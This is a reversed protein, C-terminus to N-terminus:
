TLSLQYTQKEKKDYWYMQGITLPKYQFEHQQCFIIRKPELEIFYEIIEPRLTEGLPIQLSYIPDIWWPFFHFKFDILSLKANDQDMATCLMEYHMGAKGGEHTSEITIRNGPAVSNLAGSQIEDAKGPAFIATKGLESIYLHTPTTGRLSTGCYVVVRGMHTAEMATFKLPMRRKIAAGLAAIEPPHIQANDLNTYATKMMALKKKADPLSYDIIGVEAGPQWLIADLGEMMDYTSFGLKRAKLIHNCTHKRNYYHRQADNPNFAGLRGKNDRIAYLHCLRWAPSQLNM